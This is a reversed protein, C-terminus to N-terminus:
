IRWNKEIIPNHMYANPKRKGAFLLVSTEGEVYSVLSSISNKPCHDNIFGFKSFTSIFAQDGHTFEDKCHRNWGKITSTILKDWLHTPNKKWFLMSSNFFHKDTSATSRVFPSYLGWIEKNDNINVLSNVIPDLNGTIVLDLDFYLCPGQLDLLDRFMELKYWYGHSDNIQNSFPITKCHDLTENTLCIHEHTYKLNRTVSNQIKLLWDKDYFNNEYTKWVTIINIKALMFRIKRLVQLEKM